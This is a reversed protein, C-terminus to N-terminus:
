GRVNKAACFVLKEKPPACRGSEVPLLGSSPLAGVTARQNSVEFIRGGWCNVNPLMPRFKDKRESL